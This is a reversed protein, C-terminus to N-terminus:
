FLNEMEKFLKEMKRFKEEMNKVEEPSCDKTIYTVRPAFIRNLLDIIKDKM